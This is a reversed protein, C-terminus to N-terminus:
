HTQESVRGVRGANGSGGAKGRCFVCLRSMLRAVIVSVVCETERLHLPDVSLANLHM